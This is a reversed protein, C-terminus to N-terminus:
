HGGSTITYGQELSGEVHMAAKFRDRLALVEAEEVPSLHQRWWGALLDLGAVMRFLDGESMAINGRKVHLM